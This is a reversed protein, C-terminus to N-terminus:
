EKTPDIWEMEGCRDCLWIPGRGPEYAVPVRDVMRADDSRIMEGHCGPATCPKLPYERAPRTPHNPPPNGMCASHVGLRRGQSSVAM